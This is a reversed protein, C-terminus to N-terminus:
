SSKVPASPTPASTVAQLITSKAATANVVANYASVLTQGSTQGANEATAVATLAAAAATTATIAAAPIQLGPIAQALVLVGQLDAVITPAHAAVWKLGAALDTELLGLGSQIKAVWVQIDAETTAVANEISTEVNALWQTFSTAM